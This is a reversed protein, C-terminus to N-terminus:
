EPPVIDINDWNYDREKIEEACLSCVSGADSIRTTGDSLVAPVESWAVVLHDGVGEGCRDCMEEDDMTGNM